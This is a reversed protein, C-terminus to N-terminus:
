RRWATRGRRGRAGHGCLRGVGSGPPAGGVAERWAALSGAGGAAGEGWRSVGEEGRRGTTGGVAVVPAVGWVRPGGEPRWVFMGRARERGGGEGVPLGRADRRSLRGIREITDGRVLVDAGRAPAGSGDVLRVDRLLLGAGDADAARGAASLPPVAACAAGAIMSALVRRRSWAQTPM